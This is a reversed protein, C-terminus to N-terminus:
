HTRTPTRRGRAGDRSIQWARTSGRTPWRISRVGLALGSRDSGWSRAAPRLAAAADDDRVRVQGRGHLYQRLTSGEHKTWVRGRRQLAPVVLAVVDRLGATPVPGVSSFGGGGSLAMWEVLQDAVPM